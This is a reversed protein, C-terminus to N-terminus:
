VQAQRTGQSGAPGRRRGRSVWRGKGMWGGLSWTLATLSRSTSRNCACGVTSQSNLGEPRARSGGDRDWSEGGGRWLGFIRNRSPM